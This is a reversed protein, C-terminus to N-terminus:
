DWSLDTPIWEEKALPEPKWRAPANYKVPKDNPLYVKPSREGSTIYDKTVYRRDVNKAFRGTKNQKPILDRQEMIYCQCKWYKYWNDTGGHMGNEGKLIKNKHYMMSHIATNIDPRKHFHDEKGM